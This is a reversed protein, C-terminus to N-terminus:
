ALLDVLESVGTLLQDLSLAPIALLQSSLLLGECAGFFIALNAELLGDFRLFLRSLGTDLNCPQFTVQRTQRLLVHVQNRRQRPFCWM